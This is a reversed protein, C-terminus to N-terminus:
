PNLLSLFPDLPVKSALRTQLEEAYRGVKARLAKRAEQDDESLATWLPNDQHKALLDFDMKTFPGLPPGIIRPLMESPLPSVTVNAWSAIPKIKRHFSEDWNVHVIHRYEPREPMWDYGPVVVTGIALVESTGRNAVIRDGPVLDRLSWVENAKRAVTSANG